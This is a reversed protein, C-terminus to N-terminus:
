LKQNHILTFCMQAVKIAYIGVGICYYKTSNVEAYILLEAISPKITVFSICNIITNYSGNIKSSIYNSVSSYGPNWFLTDFFYMIPNFQTDLEKEDWQM